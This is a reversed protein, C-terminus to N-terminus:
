EDAGAQEPGTQATKAPATKAPATKAPATKAPPFACFGDACVAADADGLALLPTVATTSTEDMSM